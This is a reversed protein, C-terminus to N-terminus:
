GRRSNAVIGALTQFSIAPGTWFSSMRPMSPGASRFGLVLSWTPSFARLGNTVRSSETKNHASISSSSAVCVSARNAPQFCSAQSSRQHNYARALLVACCFPCPHRRARNKASLSGASVRVIDRGAADSTSAAFFFDVRVLCVGDVPDAVSGLDFSEILDVLGFRAVLFLRTVVFVCGVADGFFFTGDSADAAFFDFATLDAVFFDVATVEAFFAALGVFEVRVVFGCLMDVAVFGVLSFDVLLFDAYRILRRIFAIRWEFL